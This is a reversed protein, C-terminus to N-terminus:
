PDLVATDAGSSKTPSADVREARLAEGRGDDRPGDPRTPPLAGGFAELIAGQTPARAVVLNDWTISKLAGEVAPSTVVATMSECASGFGSAAVLRGFVTATGPSFFVAADINNSKFAAVVKSSFAQAPEARYLAVRRVSFGAGGLVRALDRGVEAGTVVLL